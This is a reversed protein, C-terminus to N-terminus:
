FHKGKKRKTDEKEEEEEYYNNESNTIEEEKGFNELYEKKNQEKEYVINFEENKEDTFYLKEQAIKKDVTIQYTTTENTKSSKVLITIVNEGDKLNKNGLVEVIADEDNTTANVILETIEKNELTAVYDFIDPSFAPNLNINEITLTALRLSSTATAKEKTATIIYTRITGDEATVAIKIVNDGEVM